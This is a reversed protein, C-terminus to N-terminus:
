KDKEIIGLLDDEISKSVSETIRGVEHGDKMVIFVPVFKVNFKKEEGNTTTKARDVGYMTLATSPFNAQELVKALRPILDHSDDCWTGLFVVLSYHNLKLSLSGITNQNPQYANYGTAMWTFSPESNLDKITVLGNFVKGGSVSDKSITYSMNQAHTHITSFFLLAVFLFRM